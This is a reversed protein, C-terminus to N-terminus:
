LSLSSIVQLQQRFLFEVFDKDRIHSFPRQKEDEPLEAFDVFKEGESLERGFGLYDVQTVLECKYQLLLEKKANQPPPPTQLFSVLLFFFCRCPVM